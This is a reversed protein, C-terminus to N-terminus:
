NGVAMWYLTIGASSSDAAFDFGSTSVTNVGYNTNSSSSQTRAITVSFINSPFPLPFTVTTDKGTSAISGWQLIVSGPLYTYGTAAISSPGAMLTASGAGNQWYPWTNGSLTNGYMVGSGDGVGPASQANMRVQRHIGGGNLNFGIHDINILSSTSQNNTLMNPQDSAPANNAAPISTNFTFNNSM